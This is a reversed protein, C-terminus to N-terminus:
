ALDLQDAVHGLLRNKRRQIIVALRSPPSAGLYDNSLTRKIITLPYSGWRRCGIM